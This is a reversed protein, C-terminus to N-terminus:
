CTSHRNVKGRPCIKVHPFIEDFDAETRPPAVELWQHSMFLMSIKNVDEDFLTLKDGDQGIELRLNYYVVFQFPM